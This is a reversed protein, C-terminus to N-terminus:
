VEVKGVWESALGINGIHPNVPLRFRGKVSRDM